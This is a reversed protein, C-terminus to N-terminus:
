KLMGRPPTNLGIGHSDQWAELLSESVTPHPFSIDAPEESSGIMLRATSILETVGAGVMSVGVIKKTAKDQVVRIEGKDDNYALSRGNTRFFSRGVVVEIGEQRCQRETKGVSVVEPFTYIARPIMEYDGIVTEGGTANVAAVEAEAFAGHALFTTGVADGIAYVDAASTEMKKNVKIAPGDMALNLADKTEEDCIATRGVSIFVKDAELFEDNKLRVKAPVASTDISVVENKLYANIGNKKLERLLLRSVWEDEMPLVRDLAEVISVKTGVASYICAMECGIVGGGVIVLSRPPSQLNLIEKSTLITKGDFPISPIQVPKSGTALIIKEALLEMTSSENHIRIKKPATVLGKGQIIKIKHAQILMKLNKRSKEVIANKRAQMASWDPKVSGTRVGMQSAERTIKLIHASALLAKSPICGWNLCTGGILDKEILAVGAGRQACRIAASYGGPGSGILAVDFHEAM